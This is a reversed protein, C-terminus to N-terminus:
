HTASLDQLQDEVISSGPLTVVCEISDVNPIHLNAVTESSGSVPNVANGDITACVPETRASELGSAGIAAAQYCYLVGGSVFPDVLRVSSSRIYPEPTQDGVGRFITFAFVESVDTNWDLNVM